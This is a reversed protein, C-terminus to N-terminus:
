LQLQVQTNVAEVFKLTKLVFSPKNFKDGEAFSIDNQLFHM